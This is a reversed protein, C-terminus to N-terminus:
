APVKPLLDPDVRLKRDSLVEIQFQYHPPVVGKWQSVASPTIGLAGAIKWQRGGFYELVESYTMAASYLLGMFAALQKKSYGM